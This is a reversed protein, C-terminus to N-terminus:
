EFEDVINPDNFFVVKPKRQEMPTTRRIGPEDDSNEDILVADEDETFKRKTKYKKLVASADTTNLVDRTSTGETTSLKLKSMLFTSVAKMSQNTGGM